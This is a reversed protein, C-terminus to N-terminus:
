RLPDTALLAYLLHDRWEGNICLYSRAYGERTFGVRELLRISRENNPLCAAEIRRLQMPGFAHPALARVAATMHGRGAYAEGMWYGLSASQSVGRRVQGLTLGGMLAGDAARFIFYPYAADARVDRAYRRLRVRYALRTLDAPPWTPEWPTLFARSDSRLAAWADYHRMQPARLEVGAGHLAPLLDSFSLPRLFSM